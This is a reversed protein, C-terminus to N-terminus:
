CKERSSVACCLSKQYVAAAFESGHRLNCCSQNNVADVYYSHMFYFRSDQEIGQWPHEQTQRGNNLGYTAGQAGKRAWGSIMVGFFRVNGPLLNLCDIGGNEESHSMLAEMGVCIALVPKETIAKSLVDEQCLNNSKMRVIARKGPFVVIQKKLLGSTLPLM